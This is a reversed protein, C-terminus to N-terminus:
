DKKKISDDTQTEAHEAKLSKATNEAEKLFRRVAFEATDVYPGLDKKTAVYAGLCFGAFFYYM